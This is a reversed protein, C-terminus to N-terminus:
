YPQSAKRMFIVALSTVTKTKKMIIFNPLMKKQFYLIKPLSPQERVFQSCEEVDAIRGKATKIRNNREPDIHKTSAQTVEGL